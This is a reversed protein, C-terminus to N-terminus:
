AHSSNYGGAWTGEYLATVFIENNKGGLYSAIEYLIQTEGLPLALCEFRTPRQATDVPLYIGFNRLAKTNLTL